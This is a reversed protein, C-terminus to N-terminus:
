SNPACQGAMSGECVDFRMGFVAFVDEGFPWFIGGAVLLVCVRRGSQVVLVTPQLM